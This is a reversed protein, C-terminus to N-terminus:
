AFSKKMLNFSSTKIKKFILILLLISVATALWWWVLSQGMKSHIKGVYIFNAWYNPTKYKSGISNNKLVDQKALQLAKQPSNKEQLYQHMRQMMFSSVQDETKWLTSVIGDAGAYMFARSMSLLGEGTASSGGATECASLVVLDTQHLDLNYIEPLYLKHNVDNTDAPYFQIWNNMSDGSLSAHTALHIIPFQQYGNLFSDKTAANSVFSKKSVAKIEGASLPLVPLKSHVINEDATNFPAFGLVTNNSVININQDELLLAMSYHYSITKSLVLYDRKSVNSLLAEFPIYYLIGDPIIVWNDFAETQNLIPTVLKQYLSVAAELGEYRKGDTYQYIENKFVQL